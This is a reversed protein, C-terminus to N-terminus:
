RRADDPAGPILSTRRGAANYRSAYLAGVVAAAPHVVGLLPLLLLLPLLKCVVLYLAAAPLAERLPAAYLWGLPGAVLGLAGGTVISRGTQAASALSASKHDEALSRPAARDPTRSQRAAPALEGRLREITRLEEITEPGHATRATGPVGFTLEGHSTADLELRKDAVLAELWEDLTTRPAGTLAVLTARTLPVRTTTWLEVLRQEFADRDM